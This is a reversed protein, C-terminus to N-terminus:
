GSRSPEWGQFAPSLDTAGVASSEGFKLSMPRRAPGHLAPTESVRNPGTPGQCRRGRRIEPTESARNPATGNYRQRRGRSATPRAPGHLAPAQGPKGHTESARIRAQGIRALRGGHVAPAQGPKGHTEGTWTTSAGAGAQRPDRKGSEPGGACNAPRSSGAEHSLTPLLALPVQGNPWPQGRIGSQSV